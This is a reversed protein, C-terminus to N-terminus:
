PACLICRHCSTTCSATNGQKGHGDSALPRKVSRAPPKAPALPFLSGLESVSSGDGGHASGLDISDLTRNYETAAAVLGSFWVLYAPSVRDPVVAQLLKDEIFAQVAANNEEAPAITSVIAEVVGSVDRMPTLPQPAPQQPSPATPASSSSLRPLLTAAPAPAPAAAPSASAHVAAGHQHAELASTGTTAVRALGPAARERLKHARTDYHMMINAIFKSAAGTQFDTLTVMHCHQSM